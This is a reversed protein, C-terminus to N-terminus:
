IALVLVLFPYSIYEYWLVKALNEVFTKGTTKYVDLSWGVKNDKLWAIIDNQLRYKSNGEENNYVNPLNDTNRSNAMIRTFADPQITQTSEMKNVRYEIFMGISSVIINVPVHQDVRISINDRTKGAFALVMELEELECDEVRDGKDIEGSLIKKYLDGITVNEEVMCGYWPKIVKVGSRLQTITFSSM